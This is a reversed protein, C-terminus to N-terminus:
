SVVEPWPQAVARLSSLDLKAYVQTTELSHHGLLDAIEKLSAGCRILRTALTHRLLNVGRIPARIGARDLAMNVAGYVPGAMVPEGVRLHHLVFVHRATTPPRGNRLYDIIAEGVEIPLPLHAARGTKRSRVHLVATRWDIDDLRIGAVEGARMGLRAICLVIARDRRARPTSRDLSDVLREVEEPQIYRPLGALRRRVLSPVVDELRDDRVGHVRLFRFFARLATGAHGVTAPRYRGALSIVHRIVDSPAVVHLDVPGDGFVDKLFARVDRGYIHRAGCSMGRTRELHARFAEILEDITKWRLDGM